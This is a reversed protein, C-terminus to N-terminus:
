PTVDSSMASSQACPISTSLSSGAGSFVTAPTEVPVAVDSSSLVQGHLPSGITVLVLPLNTAFGHVVTPPM